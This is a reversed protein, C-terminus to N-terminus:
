SIMGSCYGVIIGYWVKGNNWVMAYKRSLTSKHYAVDTCIFCSSPLKFVSSRFPFYSYLM